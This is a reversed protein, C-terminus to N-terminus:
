CFIRQNSIPIFSGVSIFFHFVLFCRRIIFFCFYPVDHVLTRVIPTPIGKYNYHKILDLVSGGLREYVFCMHIGNPGNYLFHDVLEVVNIVADPDKSKTLNVQNMVETFLRLEDQAAEMYSTASKQIKLAYLKDTTLDRALWVTSYQGWGMKCLVKYKEAFVEGIQVNRYLQFGIVEVPHYGGIRYDKQDEEDADSFSDSSESDLM